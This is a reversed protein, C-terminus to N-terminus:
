LVVAMGMGEGKLRSAVREPRQTMPIRRDNWEGCIAFVAEAASTNSM